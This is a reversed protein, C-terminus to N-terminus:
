PEIIVMVSPTALEVLARTTDVDEIIDKDSDDDNDEDGDDSVETVEVDDAEDVGTCLELGVCIVM